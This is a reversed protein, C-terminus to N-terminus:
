KEKLRGSAITFLADYLSKECRFISHVNVKLEGAKFTSTRLVYESDSSIENDKLLAETM